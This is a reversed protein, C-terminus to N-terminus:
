RSRIPSRSIVCSIQIYKGGLKISIEFMNSETELPGCMGVCSYVWLHMRSACLRM